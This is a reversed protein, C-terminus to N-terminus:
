SGPPRRTKRRQEQQARTETTKETIKGNTKDIALDTAKEAKAQPGAVAQAPLHLLVLALCLLFGSNNM